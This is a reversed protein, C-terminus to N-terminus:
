NTNNHCNKNIYKLNINSVHHKLSNQLRKRATLATGGTEVGRLCVLGYFAFFVTYKSYQIKPEM